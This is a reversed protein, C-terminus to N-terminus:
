GTIMCIPQGVKEFEGKFNIKTYFSTADQSSILFVLVGDGLLATLHNLLQKGIGLKQYDKHVALDNIYCDFTYDTMARLFGVLEELYESSTRSYTASKKSFHKGYKEYEWYILYLKSPKQNERM